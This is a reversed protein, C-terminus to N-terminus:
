DDDGSDIMEDIESDIIAKRKTGSEYSIKSKDRFSVEIKVSDVEDNNYLKDGIKLIMERSIVPKESMKIIKTKM